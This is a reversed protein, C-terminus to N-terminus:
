NAANYNANEGSIDADKLTRAIQLGSTLQPTNQYDGQVEQMCPRGVAVTTAAAVDTADIELRISPSLTTELVSLVDLALKFVRPAPCVTLTLMMCHPVWNSPTVSILVVATKARVRGPIKSILSMKPSPEKRLTSQYSLSFSPRAFCPAPYHLRQSICQESM